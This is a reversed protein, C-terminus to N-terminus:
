FEQLDGVTFTFIGLSRWMNVIRPRDDIAFLVNYHPAIYKEYLEQKVIVDDRKDNFNRMLLMHYDTISNSLLWQETEKRYESGRGSVFVVDIDKDRIAQYIIYVASNLGDKYLEGFFSKWDKKKGETTVHHLRHDINCLTGDLDIIVVDRNYDQFYGAQMYMQMVVSHGVPNIRRADRYVAEQWPINKGFDKIEVIYSNDYAWSYWREVTRHNLNTNDVVINYGLSAFFDVYAQQQKQAERESMDPNDERLEDLNVHRWTPDNAILQKRFTSKGTAAPGRLILLKPM